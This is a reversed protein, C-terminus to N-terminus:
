SISPDIYDDNREYPVEGDPSLQAQEQQQALVELINFNIDLINSISDYLTECYQEIEENTLEDSEDMEDITHELLLMPFNIYNHLFDSASDVNKTDVKKLEEMLALCMTELTEEQGVYAYESASVLYAITTANQISSLTSISNREAEQDIMDKYTYLVKSELVKLTCLQNLSQMAKFFNVPMEGEECLEPAITCKFSEIMADYNLNMGLEVARDIITSKKTDVSLYGNEFAREVQKDIFYDVIDEKISNIDGQMSSVSDKLLDKYWLEMEAKASYLAMKYAIANDCLLATPRGLDIVFPHLGGSEVDLDTITSYEM